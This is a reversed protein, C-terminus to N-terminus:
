REGVLGTRGAAGAEGRHGHAPSCGMTGAGGSTFWSNVTQFNYFRALMMQHQGVDGVVIDKGRTLASLRSVITKALLQGERGVGGDVEAQLADAIERRFNM